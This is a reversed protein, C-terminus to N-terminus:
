SLAIVEEMEKYHVSDVEEIWDFIAGIVSHSEGHLNEATDQNMEIVASHSYKNIFRYIREKTVLTTKTCSKQAETLLSAVDSRYKPYKFTFFAELLKRSLNATLFAEEMTLSNKQKFVYLRSFLYHYESQYKTLSQDANKINSSRPTASDSEIVYFFAAPDKDKKARNKNVGDFWDRVLKYFNFNHTLVFLQKATNCHTRLFSYAHFLHNSDFSSVPDDVVIITDSIKNGNETLKIIFYVFAIATKEGESLNGDHGGSNNRIIEYGSAEPKFRLSLESRGLFRHLAENFQEAGIGASSLSNELKRVKVAQEALIPKAADVKKKIELGSQVKNFYEFDKVETAAYHLELRRKSLTTEKEFNETKKRHKEIVEQVTLVAANFGILNEEPIPAVSLSIDFQNESKKKLTEHWVKICSNLTEASTNLKEIALKFDARLEDYLESEGPYGSVDLYQGALWKDAATLRQQFKLFEDNFHGELEKKREATFVSGCFECHQGEHDAHITLGTAVWAQIDGHITLRTITANTASTKLLDSLRQHATIFRESEVNSTPSDILPKHEPRASKTLKVIEEDSLISSDKAVEAKNEKIFDELKTKNYNLYRSDKTDIVQLSTRTRRASDTLFKSIGEELKRYINDEADALAKTAGYNKLLEDLEKKEEIKEQAVLLIGKVSKDWNINQRIFSQNFTRINLACNGINTPTVLGGDDILISFDSEAFRTSSLTTRHQLAEFLMSLTSKGSGNWGYLLNLKGFKQTQLGSYNRFIGYKSLKQILNITSM